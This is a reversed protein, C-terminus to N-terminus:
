KDNLKRWLRILLSPKKPYKDYYERRLKLQKIEILYAFQNILNALPFVIIFGFIIIHVSVIVLFQSISM